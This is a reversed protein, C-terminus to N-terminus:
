SLDENDNNNNGTLIVVNYYPCGSNKCYGNGNNSPRALDICRGDPAGCKSPLSTESINLEAIEPTNWKKM